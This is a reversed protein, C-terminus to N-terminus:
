KVNSPHSGPLLGKEPGELVDEDQLVTDPDEEAKDEANQRGDKRKLTVIEEPNLLTRRKVPPEEQQEEMVSSVSPQTPPNYWTEQDKLAASAAAQKASKKNKGQGSYKKEGVMVSMTFVKDNPTGAESTLQFDLTCRMRSAMENVLQLPPKDVVVRDSITQLGGCGGHGRGGSGVWGVEGPLSTLEPPLSYGLSQWSNYLKHLALSAILSWPCNDESPGFGEENKQCKVSILGQIAIEVVATKAEPKTIGEAIFELGLATCRCEFSGVEEVDMDAQWARRRREEDPVDLYEFLVKGNGVGALENLITLPAKPHIARRLKFAPKKSIGHQGGLSTPQGKAM